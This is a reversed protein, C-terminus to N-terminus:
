RNIGMAKEIRAESVKYDYLAQIYNARANALGVEADTVELPFGVGVQYRGNALEFNEQAHGVAKETVRIREDAEKLGLFAQEAELRINLKLNEEQAQLNRLNARAEAVQNPSSFGSFLPINLTAGVFLDWYLNEVQNGRYLYSANGSLTPYYSSQALKVTAELSRQRAKLQLLEPRQAYSLNLIEDLTVQVPKIDMSDEIAFSLSERLGMANNLTVRALQYNNKARILNLEANALDVEAKTVDIKPRTGAQYFGQAQELRQKDQKVLDEAVQILRLTQLVGFYAQKVNLVVLQKATTLNEESAKVNERNITVNNARRGFDYINQTLSPGVSYFNYFTWNNSGSRTIGSYNSTGNTYNGSLDVQPYYAALAQEVRAKSAEITAQNARLSPHYKLAMATCQELTLPKGQTPLEEQQASAPWAWLFLIFLGGLWQYFKEKKRPHRM